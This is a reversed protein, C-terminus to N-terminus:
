EFAICDSLVEEGNVRAHIWDLTDTFGVRRTDHASGVYNPYRVESGARCLQAVFENQLSLPIITDATGQQILAPVGHGSTGPSNAIMIEYIEPFRQQMGGEMLAEAFAPQFLTNPNGPYYSQIELICRSFLVDELTNSWPSAIITSPDVREPGYLDAYAYVVMPAVVTFRRFLAFVSTTPGYGIVGALELEPAYAAAYDAAAFAAHGGQSYGAVFTEPTVSLAPEEADIFARAARAADLMTHAEAQAVFYLQTQEPDGFGMYDPMIGILGQGARALMHNRYRGWNVGLQHEQSTACADSLGTTGPGFVYLPLEEPESVQPVFLQATVSVEDGHPHTSSFRIQYTAVGYRAPPTGSPAQANVQTTSLSGTDTVELLRGPSHGSQAFAAVYGLLVALAITLRYLTHSSRAERTTAVPHISPTTM